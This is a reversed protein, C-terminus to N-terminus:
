VLLQPTPPPVCEMLFYLPPTSTKITTFDRVKFGTSNGFISIWSSLTIMSYNTSVLACLLKIKLSITFLYKLNLFAAFHKHIPRPLWYDLASYNRTSIREALSGKVNVTFSFIPHAQMGPISKKLNIPIWTFKGFLHIVILFEYFDTFVTCSSFIIFHSSM